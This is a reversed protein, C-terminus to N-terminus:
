RLPIEISEVVAIASEAEAKCLGRVEIRLRNADADLLLYNFPRWVQGSPSSRCNRGTYRDAPRSAHLPSRPGGGGGSVVFHVGDVVLHEYGHAHGSVLLPRLTTRKLLPVIHAQMALDPALGQATSDTYPPRHAFVVLGEFSSEFEGLRESLWRGQAALATESDLFVLALNGFPLWHPEGPALWPFRLRVNEPVVRQSCLHVLWCNYDHNGMVPLIPVNAAIPQLLTDLHAWDRRSRANYVLDGLVVLAAAGDAHRHLDRVLLAQERRNSERRMLTRVFWSTMQLDGVVALVRGGELAAPLREPFTASPQLPVCGALLACIYLLINRLMAM